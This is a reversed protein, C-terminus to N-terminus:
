ILKKLESLLRDAQRPGMKWFGPDDLDYGFQAIQQKPSLSSGTALLCKFRNNFDAEGRKYEDYVAYVLMQAFSYSYNYFRFNPFFFHPIRAWEYEMYPTWDVADGFIKNKAATWLECALEADLNRGDEIVDYLTREFLARTGVYYVVYFYDNLTGSLAEMRQGDTKSISLIKDTLLLEGFISGCEAMCSSSRYNLPTQSNYILHHQAAHGNEHALIAADRLSKNFNMFVYSKKDSYWGACFAGGRKGVRNAADIRHNTFMNEVVDGLESDFSKFSDVIIDRAKSYEFSWIPDNTWPAIVDHGLLKKTGFFKAKLKLFEQFVSSTEEITTLLADIASEEVDQDLLSQTMTSPLGRRQTMMVHDSCISKLALGHMMSDDAYSKYLTLTAMERVDRDADLRLASLEPFTLKRREGGIELDFEKQSVWAEQLQSITHIGNVDKASALTEERESLQYPASALIRELYHRYTSLDDHNVLDPQRMLLNSLKLEFVTQMSELHSRYTLYWTNLQNGDKDTTDTYYTLGCYSLVDSIPVLLREYEVLFEVLEHPMGGAIVDDCNTLHAEIKKLRQEIMKKVTPVKAGEVM